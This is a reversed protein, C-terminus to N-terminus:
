EYANCARQNRQRALTFGSFWPKSSISPSNSPLQPGKNQCAKARETKRLDEAALSSVTSSVVYQYCAANM